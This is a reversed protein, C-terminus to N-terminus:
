IIDDFQPTTCASIKHEGIAECLLKVGICFMILAAAIVVVATGMVGYKANPNLLVYIGSLAPLLITSLNHAAHFIVPLWINKSLLLLATYLISNATVNSWRSVHMFAFLVTSLIAAAVRGKKTRFPSVAFIRCCFEELFPGFLAVLPLEFLMEAIEEWSIDKEIFFLRDIDGSVACAQLFVLFPCLLFASAAVKASPMSIDMDRVAPLAKRFSCFLVAAIVCGGFEVLSAQCVQRLQSADEPTGAYALLVVAFNFVFGFIFIIPGAMNKKGAEEGM